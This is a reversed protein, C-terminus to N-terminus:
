RTAENRGERLNARIWNIFDLTRRRAHEDRLHAHADDVTAPAETDPRLREGTM